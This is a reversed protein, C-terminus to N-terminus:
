KEIKGGAVDSSTVTLFVNEGDRAYSADWGADQPLLSRATNFLLATEIQNQQPADGTALTLDFTGGEPVCIDACVLWNVKASLKLPDGKQWSDSLQIPILHYADNSYGYNLLPGYPLPEPYPWEIEGMSVGDPVTWRIDPPQGSDGPNKWYTHWGDKIKFHLMVWATQGPEITSVEPVLQATVHDTKVTSAWATTWALGIFLFFVAFFRALHRVPGM